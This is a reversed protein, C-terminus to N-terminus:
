QKPIAKGKKDRVIKGNEIWTRNASKNLWKFGSQGGINFVRKKSNKNKEKIKRDFEEPDGSLDRLFDIFNGM